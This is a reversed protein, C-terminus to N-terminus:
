YTKATHSDTQEEIHRMRDQQIHYKLTQLQYSLTNV